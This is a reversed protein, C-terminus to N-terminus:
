AEGDAYYQHITGWVVRKGPELNAVNESLHDDWYLIDDHTEVIQIKDIEVTKLGIEDLVLRYCEAADEEDAAIAALWGVAGHIEEDLIQQIDGDGEFTVLAIWWMMNEPLAPLELVSQDLNDSM